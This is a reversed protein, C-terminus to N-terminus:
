CFFEKSLNNQNKKFTPLSPATKVYDPLLQWQTPGKYKFNRRCFDLDVRPILLDGTRISRTTMSHDPQRVKISNCVNAPSLDHICKYVQSNLHKRRRIYLEDLNLNQHM